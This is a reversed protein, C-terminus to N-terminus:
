FPHNPLGFAPRDVSGQEKSRAGDVDYVDIERDNVRRTYIDGEQTIYYIVDGKIEAVDHHADDTVRTVPHANGNPGQPSQDLFFM